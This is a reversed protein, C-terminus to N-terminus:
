PAEGLAISGTFDSTVDPSPVADRFVAQRICQMDVRPMQAGRTVAAGTKSM